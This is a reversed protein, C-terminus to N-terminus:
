GLRAQVREHIREALPVCEALLADLETLARDAFVRDKIQPANIRVNLAASRLAAASALVGVGVDSIVNPNGHEVARAALRVGEAAARACDLPAQTAAVLGAQIAIGRAAKEADSAKPLKYAAMLADFALADGEVMATMRTRLAESEVLLGRMDAEVAEHGKKGITLNAVMSILAAGMAGMVAAAGGGGPTPAASALEDLFRATNLPESM